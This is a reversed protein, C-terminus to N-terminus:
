NIHWSGSEAELSFRQAGPVLLIQHLLCSADSPPTAAVRFGLPAGGAKKFSADGVAFDSRGGVTVRAHM